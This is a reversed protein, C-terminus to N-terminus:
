KGSDTPNQGVRQLSIDQQLNSNRHSNLHEQLPKSDVVLMCRRHSCISSSSESSLKIEAAFVNSGTWFQAVQLLLVKNIQIMRTIIQGKNHYEDHFQTHLRNSGPIQVICLSRAMKLAPGSCITDSCQTAQLISVKPSSYFLNAM